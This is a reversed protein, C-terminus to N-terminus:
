LSLSNISYDDDLNFEFVSKEPVNFITKTFNSKGEWFLYHLIGFLPKERLTLGIM